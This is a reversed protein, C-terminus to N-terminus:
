NPRQLESWGWKVIPGFLPWSKYEASERYRKITPLNEFRDMYANVASFKSFQEKDFLRFWDLFEYAKFDVHTMTQGAMWPENGLFKEILSLGNDIYNQDKLSQRITEVDSGHFLQMIFNWGFDQIQNEAIDMRVYERENKPTMGFKRGLYRLIAHHQTIKIDGEIYYPLNPFDLGLTHKEKFWTARMDPLPDFKIRRDEFPAENYKLM